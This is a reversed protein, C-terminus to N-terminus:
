DRHKWDPHAPTPETNLSEESDLHRTRCRAPVIASLRFGRASSSSFSKVRLRELADPSSKRKVLLGIMSTRNLSVTASGRWDDFGQALKKPKKYPSLM